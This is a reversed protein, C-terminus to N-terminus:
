AKEPRVQWGLYLFLHERTSDHQRMKLLSFNSTTVFLSGDAPLFVSTSKTGHPGYFHMGVAINM